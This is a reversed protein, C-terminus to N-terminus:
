WIGPLLRYRVQAAYNAYGDLEEKLTRDELATRVIYGLIALGEPIFAWISGLALPTGLMNVIMGVYGPHRVNRYPGGTAVSHRRDAQIRVTTAFFKNSVMAWTFLMHGCAVLSLGLIHLWLPLGPTWGFRYDLGTLILAALTFVTIVTTIKKDWGKTEERKLRGREAVVEPNRPLLVLANFVLVGIGVVIFGWGAPWDLTGASVFLIVAIILFQVLVQVLRKAIAERLGEDNASQNNLENANM